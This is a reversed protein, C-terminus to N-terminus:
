EGKDGRVRSDIEVQIAGLFEEIDKVDDLALEPKDGSLVLSNIIELQLLLDDMDSSWKIGEDSLAGTLEELRIVLGNLSLQRLRYAQIANTMKGFLLEQNNM